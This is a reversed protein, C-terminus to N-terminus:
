DGASKMGANQKMKTVWQEIVGRIVEKKKRKNELPIINVM